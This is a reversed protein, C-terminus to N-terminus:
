REPLTDATRGLELAEPTSYPWYLMYRSHHVRFFPVLETNSYADPEIMGSFRFRLEGDDVREIRKAIDDTSASVLIPSRPLPCMAGSPIHGMRSDDAYFDLTEDEFPTTEASLVIPGYLIALYDSGDPLGETHATMPLELSVVDGKKWDRRLPIYSGPAASVEHLEGNIRVTAGEAAAWSPYRIQLGTDTDSEFVLRTAPRDPFDTEQRLSLGREPWDIRSPIYLNVVLDDDDRAYVLEGYKFHNEIGSGVCCWMAEHVRSYVRYHQPRAPTFYVLGGTAPDQSALIHNYLAREYYDVYKLDPAAQYLLRTLRLMNYTNCTEPGEVDRIMPEFDDAAHFHERVSNGGFAVTRRGVVTAWFFEAARRWEPRDGVEAIRGFGVVKPIQTNAHLGDLRDRSALLPELIERHSFREALELYREDGTIAAVDALVENMGGHEAELMAQIQEDSLGSVIEAAWDALGVLLTRAQQSDAYRWADRLGAFIKHLNYWPVWRDNLAFLDARIDGAAIQRWLTGGDPVGGLYGDGNADQTRQLENLMYDLRDRVDQRGTAAWALSLATLYHGGMHGNLGSGEWNGYHTARPELGAEVLYPALLRDPDMALVYQLNRDQAEKFPGDLLRVHQIPVTELPGSVEGAPQPEASCAALCLGLTALLARDTM